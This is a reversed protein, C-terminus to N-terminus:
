FVGSVPVPMFLLLFLVLCAWGLARRAVGLSVNEIVVPPHRVRMLMTMIACWLIWGPWSWSLHAVARLL